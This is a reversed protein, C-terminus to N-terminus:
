LSSPTKKVKDLDYAVRAHLAILYQQMEQSLPKREPEPLWFTIMWYVLTGLYVFMRVHELTTFQREWGLASHAVDIAVAVMAWATLGQGLGMVHNRWQLGLRNSAILMVVFLECILLSTFLNGRIEWADLSTPAPPHVAFALALAIVAGIGGWLLFSSRAAQVWAGTPRLVIRAIEFVLAVQLGFDIAVSIWYVLAYEHSSGHKYIEFLAITLLADFGILTTFVPFDRWRGRVLLVFLLAAHGAFGAAWLVTDLESLHM